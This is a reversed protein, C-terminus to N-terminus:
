KVQPYVHPHCIFSHSGENVRAMCSRMVSSDSMIFRQVFKRNSFRVASVRKFEHLLQVFNATFVVAGVTVRFGVSVQIRVRIVMAYRDPLYLSNDFVNGM